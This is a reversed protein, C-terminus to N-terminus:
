NTLPQPPTPGEGDAGGGAGPVANPDLGEEKMQDAAYHRVLDMRPIRHGKTFAGRDEPDEGPPIYFPYDNNPFQSAVEWMYRGWEPVVTIYAADERGLTRVRHDDGMWVMTLLRSTFGIFQTDFTNDSTGTKGAAHIETERVTKTLGHEVMNHLLGSILYATRPAIAQKEEVGALAAVRDLRDGAQLDPDFTVTNDEVVNGDRDTIRRVFKWDLWKGGRAFIGFARALEYPHVCSSGLAMSDDLHFAEPGTDPNTYGLKRLWPEVAKAGGLMKFLQISPINKSFV